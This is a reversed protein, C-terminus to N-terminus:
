KLKIKLRDIFAKKELKNEFHYRVEVGRYNKGIFYQHYKILQTYLM